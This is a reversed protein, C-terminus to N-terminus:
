QVLSNITRHWLSSALGCRLFKVESAFIELLKLCQFNFGDYFYCKSNFICCWADNDWLKFILYRKQSSLEANLASKRLNKKEQM